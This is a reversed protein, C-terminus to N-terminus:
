TTYQTALSMLREACAIHEPDRCMRLGFRYIAPAHRALLESLAKEDGRRVAEILDAESREL